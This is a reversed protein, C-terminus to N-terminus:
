GDVTDVSENEVVQVGYLVTAQGDSNVASDGPDDVTADSVDNSDTSDTVGADDNGNYEVPAPGYYVKREDDWGDCGLLGNLLAVMGMLSASIACDILLTLRRALSMKNENPLSPETPM